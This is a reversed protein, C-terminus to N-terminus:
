RIGNGGKRMWKIQEDVIMGRGRGRRGKKWIKGNKKDTLVTM